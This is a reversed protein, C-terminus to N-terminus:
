DTTPISTDSICEEVPTRRRIYRDYARFFQRDLRVERDTTEIDGDKERKWIRIQRWHAAAMKGIFLHDLESEPHLASNLDAVLADFHARNETDLLIARALHSNAKGRPTVPGQSKRGNARSAAQQKETRPKQTKM